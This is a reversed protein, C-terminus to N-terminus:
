WEKWLYGGREGVALLSPAIVSDKKMGEGGIPSLTLTLPNKNPLRKAAGM